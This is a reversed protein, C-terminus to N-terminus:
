DDTQTQVSNARESYENYAPIAIAALLAVIAFPAFLGVFWTVATNPKPPLGYDNAGKSGPAFLLYLVFLLNIVPILLLLALWGSSNLDHLRRASIIFTITLPVVYFVVTFIAFYTTDVSMGETLVALLLSGIIGIVVSAVLMAVFNYALYRVRGIRQSLSFVQIAEFEVKAPDVIQSEPTQYPSHNNTQNM